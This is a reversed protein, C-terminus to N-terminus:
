TVVRVLRVRHPSPRSTFWVLRWLLARCRCDGQILRTDAAATAPAETRSAAAHEDPPPWLWADLVLLPVDPLLGTVRPMEM